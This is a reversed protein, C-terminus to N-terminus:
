KEEWVVYDEYELAAQLADYTFGYKCTRMALRILFKTIAVRM